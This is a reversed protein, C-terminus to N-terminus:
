NLAAITGFNKFMSADPLWLNDEEELTSRMAALCM